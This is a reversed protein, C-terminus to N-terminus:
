NDQLYLHRRAKLREITVEQEITRANSAAMDAKNKEVDAIAQLVFLACTPFAHLQYWHVDDIGQGFASM